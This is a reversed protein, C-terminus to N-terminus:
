QMQPLVIRCYHRLACTKSVSTARRQDPGGYGYPFILPFLDILKVQHGGIYDGNKFLLTPKKGSLYSFIFDNQTQFPGTEQSPENTPAFTFQEGDFVNEVESNNDECSDTNNTSEDFGGLVIPQPCTQPLNMNRYSPHNKILWKYIANYDDVNVECRRRIIERQAPTVRGCIMVYIDPPAGANVLYEFSAGVHEPDNFFFCM